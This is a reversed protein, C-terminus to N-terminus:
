YVLNIRGGPNSGDVIVTRQGCDTISDTVTWSIAPIVGGAELEIGSMITQASAPYDSCQAIQYCELTESAWVLESIDPVDLATDNIGVFESRYTFGNGSQNVLTIVGTLSTGVSVPVLSSHFAHGSPSVYWNAVAWFNGGGIASVGWQLVPQVIDDQAVDEIANFLFITQGSQTTPAKPVAWTTKFRSISRGTNNSWSAFTIWGSGIEPVTLQAEPLTTLEALSNTDLNLLHLKGDSKKIIQRAGVHHVLSRHRYGGPTLVHDPPIRAGARVFQRQNIKM